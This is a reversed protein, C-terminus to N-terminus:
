RLQVAHAASDGRTREPYHDARKQRRPGIIHSNKGRPRPRPVCAPSSMVEHTTHATSSTMATSSPTTPVQNVTRVSRQNEAIVAATRTMAIVLYPYPRVCGGLELRTFANLLPASPTM